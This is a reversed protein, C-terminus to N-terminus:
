GEDKFVSGHNGKGAAARSEIERSDIFFKKFFGDGHKVGWVVASQNQEMREWRPHPLAARKLIFKRLGFGLESM